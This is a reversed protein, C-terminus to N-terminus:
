FRRVDACFTFVAPASAAPQNFHCPALRERLAPDTTVIISYVQMNGTNSARTASALMEHMVEEPIANSKFRRHSRHAAIEKIM